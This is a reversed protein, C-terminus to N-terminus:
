RAKLPGAQVPQTRWRAGFDELSTTKVLKGTDPGLCRPLHRSAPERYARATLAFWSVRPAFRKVTVSGM